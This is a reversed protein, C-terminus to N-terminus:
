RNNYEYSENPLEEIIVEEQGLFMEKMLDRLLSQAKFCDNPMCYLMENHWHYPLHNFKSKICDWAYDPIFAIKPMDPVESISILDEIPVAVKSGTDFCWFILSASESRIKKATFCVEAGTLNKFKVFM